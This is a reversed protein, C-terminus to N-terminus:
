TEIAEIAKKLPSQASNTNLAYKEYVKVAKLSRLGLAQQVVQLNSTVRYLEFAFTHRLDHPTIKKSLVQTAKTVIRHVDVKTLRKHTYLTSFFPENPETSYQNDTKWQWYTKLTSRLSDTLPLQRPQAFAVQQDINLLTVLSGFKIFHHNNLASIESNRLGTKLCLSIMAWDRIKGRQYLSDLLLIQENHSLVYFSPEPM